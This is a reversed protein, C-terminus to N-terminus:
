LTVGFEAMAPAVVQDIWTNLNESGGWHAWVVSGEEAARALVDDWSLDGALFATRFAEADPDGSPQAAATALVGALLSLALLVNRLRKM